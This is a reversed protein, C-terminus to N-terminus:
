GLRYDNFVTNRTLFFPISVMIGFFWDWLIFLWYEKRTAKGIFDAYHHKIVDIFYKKM